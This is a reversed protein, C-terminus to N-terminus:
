SPQLMAQAQMAQIQRELVDIKAQLTDTHSPQVQQAAPLLDGYVHWGQAPHAMASAAPPAVLGYGTGSALVHEQRPAWLSLSPLPAAAPLPPLVSRYPALLTAYQRRVYDARGDRERQLAAALQAEPTVSPPALDHYPALTPDYALTGGASAGLQLHLAGQQVPQVHQVPQVPQVLAWANSPRQSVEPM